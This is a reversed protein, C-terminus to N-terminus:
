DMSTRRYMTNEFQVVEPYYQGQVIWPHGRICQIRLSYWRLTTCDRYSGHIDVSVNYERVTGTNEFQVVESYYLGQVIWPHGRICQIRSSYWRLTTCDRYLGHIDVSVNYERVTGGYTLVTGTRDM